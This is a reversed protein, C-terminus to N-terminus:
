VVCVVCVRRLHLARLRDMRESKKVDSSGSCAAEAMMYDSFFVFHLSM